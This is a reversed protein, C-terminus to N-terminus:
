TPLDITATHCVHWILWANCTPEIQDPIDAPVAQHDLAQQRSQHQNGMEAPETTLDAHDSNGSMVHTM